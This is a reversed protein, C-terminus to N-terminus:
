EGNYEGSSLIEPRNNNYQEVESAELYGTGSRTAAPPPASRMAPMQEASQPELPEDVFACGIARSPVTQTTMPVYMAGSCHEASLYGTSRDIWHWQINNPQNMEVPTQRLQRM